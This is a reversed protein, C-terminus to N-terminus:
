IELLLITVSLHSLKLKVLAQGLQAVQLPGNIRQNLEAISLAGHSYKFILYQSLFHIFVVREDDLVVDLRQELIVLILQAHLGFITVLLQQLGLVKILRDEDAEM